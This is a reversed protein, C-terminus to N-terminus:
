FNPSPMIRSVVLQFAFIYTLIDFTLIVTFSFTFITKRAYKQRRLFYVSKHSILVLHVGTAFWEMNFCPLRWSPLTPQNQRVYHGLIQVECSLGVSQSRAVGYGGRYGSNIWLFVSCCNWLYRIKVLPNSKKQCARYVVTWIELKCVKAVVICHIQCLSVSGMKWLENLLQQWQNTRFVLWRIRSRCDCLMM